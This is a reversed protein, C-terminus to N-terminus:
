TNTSSTMAMETKDRTKQTTNKITNIERMTMNMGIKTLILVM